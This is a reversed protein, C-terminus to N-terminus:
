RRAALWKEISARDYRVTRGPLALKGPVLKQASWRQLTRLDVQALAAVQLATLVRANEPITVTSITESSAM